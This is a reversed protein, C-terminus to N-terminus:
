FGLTQMILMSQETITDYTDLYTGTLKTGYVINQLEDIMNRDTFTDMIYKKIQNFYTQHKILNIQEAVYIEQLQSITYLSCSEGDAHYPVELSTKSATSIMNELNTQDQLTYAYHKDRVDVGTYIASQCASSLESIKNLKESEFQAQLEEETPVYPEPEPEPVVIPKPEVYEIGNNCLEVILPNNEYTRYIYKYEERRTQVFGNYENILNFGSLLEENPLIESDFILRVQNTGIQSFSGNYITSPNNNFVIKSM